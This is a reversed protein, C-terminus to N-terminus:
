LSHYMDWVKANVKECDFHKEVYARGEKGLRVREQPNEILWALKEKIDHITASVLPVDPYQEQKVEDILYCMVPKGFYMGEVALTGFGGIIFQDMIIDAEERYIRLAEQHDLGEIRRYEFALGDEKLEDIACEVYKTGKLGKHSPAHVVVPPTKTECLGPDYAKLDMLNHVWLDDEVKDQPFIEMASAFINRPAIVRHM